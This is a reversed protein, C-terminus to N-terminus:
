RRPGESGEAEEDVEDAGGSGEAADGLLALAASAAVAVSAGRRVVSAGIAAIAGQRALAAAAAPDRALESLAALHRRVATASAGEDQLAAILAVGATGASGTGTGPEATQLLATSAAAGASTTGEGPECTNSSAELAIGPECTNFCVASAIGPECTNSSAVAASDQSPMEAVSLPAATDGAPAASPAEPLKLASAPPAHGPVLGASFRTVCATVTATSGNECANSEACGTSKAVPPALKKGHCAPSLAAVAEAARPAIPPAAAADDAEEARHRAAGHRGKGKRAKAQQQGAGGESCTTGAAAAAVSAGAGAGAGSAGASAGKGTAAASGSGGIQSASITPALFSAAAASAVGASSGAGGAPVGKAAAAAQAAHERARAAVALKVGRHKCAPSSHAWEVITKPKSDNHGAIDVRAGAALLALAADWHANFCACHLPTVRIGSDSHSPAKAAAANIAEALHPLGSGLLLKVAVTNESAAFHLASYGDMACRLLSDRDAALIRRLLAVDCDAVDVAYLVPWWGNGDSSQVDARAGCDLLAHAASWAGRRCARLLPTDGRSDRDEVPAGAEAVMWRVVAPANAVAAADHLIPLEGVRGRALVDVGAAHLAQLITLAHEASIRSAEDEHRLWAIPAAALSHGNAGVAERVGAALVARLIDLGDACNGRIFRGCRAACGGCGRESAAAVVVAAGAVMRAQRSGPPLAAAGAAGAAILQRVVPLSMVTCALFLATRGAANAAGIDAGLELLTAACADSGAAAASAIPTEGDADRAELLSPEAAIVRRLWRCCFEEYEAIVDASPDYRAEALVHALTHGASTALTLSAGRELVWEMGVDSGAAAAACLPWWAGDKCPENVDAGADLLVRATGLFSRLLAAILPTPREELSGAQTIDVAAEQLAQLINACASDAGPLGGSAAGIALTALSKLRSAKVAVERLSPCALLHRLTALVDAHKEANGTSLARAAAEIARKLLAAALPVPVAAVDAARDRCLAAMADACLADGVDLGDLVGHVDEHVPSTRTSASGSPSIDAPTVSAM